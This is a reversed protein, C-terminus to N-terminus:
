TAHARKHGGESAAMKPLKSSAVGPLNRVEPALEADPAQSKGNGNWVCVADTAQRDIGLQSWPGMRATRPM